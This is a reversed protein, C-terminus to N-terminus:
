VKKNEEFNGKGQKKHIKEIQIIVATKSTIIVPTKTM